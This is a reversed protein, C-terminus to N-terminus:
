VTLAARLEEEALQFLGFDVFTGAVDLYLRVCSRRAPHLHHLSSPAGGGGPGARDDRARLLDLDPNLDVVADLRRTVDRRGKRSSADTKVPILAWRAPALAAQQLTEQGPPCDIFILDYEGALTTLASALALKAATPDKQAKMTLGAAAM